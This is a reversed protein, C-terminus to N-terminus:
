NCQAQQQSHLLSPPQRRWAPVEPGQWCVRSSAKEMAWSAALNWAAEVSLEARTAARRGITGMGVPHQAAEMVSLGLTDM